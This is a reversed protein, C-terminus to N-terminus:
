PTEYLITVMIDSPAFRRQQGAGAGLLRTPEASPLIAQPAINSQMHVVKAGSQALWANVEQELSDTDDELGMFIKIQPM